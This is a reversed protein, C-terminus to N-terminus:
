LRVGRIGYNAISDYNLVQYTDYIMGITQSPKSFYLIDNIRQLRERATVLKMSVIAEEDRIAYIERHIEIKVGPDETMRWLGYYYKHLKGLEAQKWQMLEIEKELEAKERKLEIDTKIM